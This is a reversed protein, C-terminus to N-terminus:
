YCSIEEEIMKKIEKVMENDSKAESKLNTAEAIIIRRILTKVKREDVVIEDATINSNASDFTSMIKRRKM